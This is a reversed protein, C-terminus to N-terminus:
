VNKSGSISGLKNTIQTRPSALSLGLQQGKEIREEPTVTTDEVTYKGFDPLGNLFQKEFAEALKDISIHFYRQNFKKKEEVNGENKIKETKNLM